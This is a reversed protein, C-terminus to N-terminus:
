VITAGIGSRQAPKNSENFDKILKCVFTGPFWEGDIYHRFGDNMASVQAEIITKQTGAFLVGHRNNCWRKSGIDWVGWTKGKFEPFIM